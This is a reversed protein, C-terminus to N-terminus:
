GVKGSYVKTPEQQYEEKIKKECFNVLGQIKYKDLQAAFAPDLIKKDSLFHDVKAKYQKMKRNIRTNYKVPTYISKSPNNELDKEISKKATERKKNVITKKENTNFVLSYLGMTPIPVRMDELVQSGRILRTPLSNSEIVKFYTNNKKDYTNTKEKGHARMHAMVDTVYDRDTPTALLMAGDISFYTCGLGKQLTMNSDMVEINAIPLITNCFKSTIIQTYPILGPLPDCHLYSVATPKNTKDILFEGFIAHSGAFYVIQFKILNEKTDKEILNKIQDTLQDLDDMTISFIASPYKKVSMKAALVLAIEETAILGLKDFRKLIITKQLSEYKESISKMLVTVDSSSSFKQNIKELYKCFEDKKLDFFLREIHKIIWSAVKDNNSNLAIQLLNQGRYIDTIKAGQQVLLDALQLNGDMLAKELADRAQPNAHKKILLYEVLKLKTQLDVHNLSLAGLLLSSKHYISTPNDYPVDIGYQNIYEDIATTNIDGNVDLLIEKM